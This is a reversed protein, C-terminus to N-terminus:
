LDRSIWYFKIKYSFLKCKLSNFLFYWLYFMSNIMCMWIIYFTISLKCIYLVIKNFNKVIMTLFSLFSFRKNFYIEKSYIKLTDRWYCRNSKINISISLLTRSHMFCIWAYIVNFNNFRFFLFFVPERKLRQPKIIIKKINM